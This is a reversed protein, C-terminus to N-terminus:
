VKSTVLEMDQASPNSSTFLEFFYNDIISVLDEKTDRWAGYRDMLGMIKNRGRRSPAEDGVSSVESSTVLEPRVVRCQVEEQVLGNEDGKENDIQLNSKKSNNEVKLQGTILAEVDVEADVQGSSKAKKIVPQKFGDRVTSERKGLIVIEELESSRQNGKM